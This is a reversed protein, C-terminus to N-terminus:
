FVYKLAFQMIRPDMANRIQGFTNSTTTANVGGVPCGSVGTACGPRFSNTVNFAEARFEVRQRERVAFGRTLAVDFSWAAPGRLSNRGINGLTGLAPIGFAAPNLYNRLPDSSGGYPNGSIQDARQNSTGTLSRDQGSIINLPNGSSIRYIGALIWGTALRRMTPNSFQPTQAVSTANLIQRRDADCNGQDFRRNQPATYSINPNQGMPNYLTAFPGICHSWTYNVSATVGKAARREISLVMGNYNQTGGDDATPVFGILAGDQPRELTLRRRQDTNATSSCPNYTVGNITCPGGPIYVAPNLEDNGWLHRMANGLYSASALWNTAVQRQITLNWSQATPPRLNYPTTYFYGLPAFVVNKDVTYPYPNGGAIGQWPNDFGGPISTLTTRNGWPPMGSYSERFDGPVFAYGYTYAARVSTRGDGAPDWAFGLRPAFQLLRSNVGTKAPFGPDGSFYLGAPANAFVTSKIGQQFRKHDFNMVAFLPGPGPKVPLFPDWRVSYNLTFKPTVKWTDAAYAGIYTLLENNHNLGGEYFRSPTGLLFDGMGLGTTQGSFSFQAIAADYSVSVDRGHLANGGFALQHNGKLWSVDDNVAYSTNIFLMGPAFSDGLTFGGTIATTGVNGPVYCYMNVGVDCFNWYPSQQLHNAARNVSLRFAQVVNSGVLYTDGFAYSQQLWKNGSQTSLLVNTSFSMPDPNDVSTIVARGLLSHNASFQYDVKSIYQGEDRINLGGYTVLGCPNSTTPLRSSVNVAAKSYLAPNIRNNVFPTKLTIQRGGNCAPSTFATWDGALIAPTPVFSQFNSPDQRLTTKQYGGFFFLRNKLIPGGVTGGFQNRKLTSNKTAFYNRANFLDNRVFEFLDGHFENTGSKTVAGVTASRGTSATLGSIEVKFEQTADPFPMQMNTSTMFNLHNAGDLSFDTGFGVGGAVALLTGTSGMRDSATAQQVAGGALTILDQVNRGNLPLELIRENEVVQGVTSTRTEVLAANAEVQIQESVQGVQLLPNIVPSSNVQLVVGTQVYTRFGPLSAEVRYSGLPLDPFVYLGTENTVSTRTIGTDTQTAKIEVGPLVAGSQDRATGSIQATAQAWITICGFTFALIVCFLDPFIRRMYEDEKM